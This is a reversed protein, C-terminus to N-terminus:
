SLHSQLKIRHISSSKTNSIKTITDLISSLTTKKQHNHKSKLL